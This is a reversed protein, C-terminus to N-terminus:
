YAFGECHLWIGQAGTGKHVAREDSLGVVASRVDSVLGGPGCVVVASEGRAQELSKRIVNACAPRGSLVAIRPHLLSKRPTAGATWSTTTALSTPRDAPKPPEIKADSPATAATSPTDKIRGNDGEAPGCCCCEAAEGAEDEDEVERKCCCGNPGCGEAEADDISVRGPAPSVAYETTTTGNKAEIEKEPLKEPLPTGRGGPLHGRVKEGGDGVARALEALFSRHEATFGDDCTCYVSMEVEISLGAERLAVVEAAVESLQSAFWEAQGRAKVVWVFRVHRTAVGRPTIWDKWSSPTSPEAWGTVIDRLLPVTFSAGSSGAILVVSDFQRLPRVRGYPGEIAVTRVESRQIGREDVPLAGHQREAHRFFSRTAKGESKVYFEMKGDRPISAITFPHSQLPVVSHCSLFVHQGPAWNVPPDHVTIRTTDNSLPTFQARCAWPGTMTKSARQKPHFYSINTYLVLLWRTVRDFFFIGVCAWIWPHVEVPTHIYVMTVFATFSLLHQVVFFEYNWGRIPMSSSVVIWLLVAFAIIGHKTIPDGAMKQYKWAGYPWWDALWYGFHLFTTLLFCRAAWRHLWALREYSMGSLWGIVNHKGALLFLLPMQAIAVFGTRYGINEFNVRLTTDFGYFCLVVLVVMNALVLVTQGVTPMRVHYNRIKLPTLTANSAERIVATVTAYLTFFLSKPKAPSPLGNRAAYLRQRHLFMNTLNALFAVGVAAGIVAWYANQVEFLSPIGPGMSMSGAGMDM